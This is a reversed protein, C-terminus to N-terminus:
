LAGRRFLRKRWKKITGGETAKERPEVAVGVDEVCSELLKLRTKEAWENKEAVTLRGLTSMAPDDSIMLTAKKLPLIRLQLFPELDFELFKANYATSSTWSNPYHTNMDLCLHVTDLSELTRISSPELADMWALQDSLRVSVDVSPRSLHLSKINKKQEPGLNALFKGFSLADDFSFTNKAYLINNALNYLNRCSTFLAFCLKETSPAFNSLGCCSCASHRIANSEIDYGSTQDMSNAEAYAAYETKNAQCIAHRFGPPPLPELQNRDYSPLVQRIRVDGLAYLSVHNAQTHKVHILNGKAGIAYSVIIDLVETAQGLLTTRLANQDSRTYKAWVVM